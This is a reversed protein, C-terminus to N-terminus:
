GDCQTKEIIGLESFTALTWYVTDFANTPITKRLRNYILEASPYDKTVLREKFIGLRQHTLKIGADDCITKLHEFHQGSFINGSM